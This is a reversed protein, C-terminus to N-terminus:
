QLDTLRKQLEAQSITSEPLEFDVPVDYSSYMQRYVTDKAAISVVRRAKRDIEIEVKFAEQGTYAKPDAQDLDHLGLDQAFAKLMAVFAVPQIAADYVYVTRGNKREKKVKSFDIQYVNDNRIQAILASRDEPQMFGVPVGIGGLPLGTGLVSQSFLSGQNEDTKAWIGIVKSFDLAKGDAGTQDTDISIYRTYDLKPTSVAESRVLTGQQTLTTLSRVMNEAGLSYRLTQHAKTGSNDQEAQITVARTALSQEITNWFVKEPDTGKQYCWVGTAVILLLAGATYLWVFPKKTM